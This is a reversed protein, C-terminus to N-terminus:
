RMGSMMVSIERGIRKHIPVEKLDSYLAVLNALVSFGYLYMKEDRLDFPRVSVPINKPVVCKVAGFHFGNNINQMIKKNYYSLFDHDRECVHEILTDALGLFEKDMASSLRVSRKICGSGYPNEWFLVSCSGNKFKLGEIHAQHESFWWDDDFASDSLATASELKLPVFGDKDADAGYLKKLAAPLRDILTQNFFLDARWNPFCIDAKPVITSCMYGSPGELRSTRDMWQKAWMERTFFYFGRKQGGVCAQWHDSSLGNKRIDEVQEPTARTIHYLKITKGM